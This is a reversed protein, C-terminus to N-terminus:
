RSGPSALVGVHRAKLVGGAHLDRLSAEITEAADRYRVGLQDHVASDDTPRALTLLDMAEATFVTDFPAVRLDSSCM